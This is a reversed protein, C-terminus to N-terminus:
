EREEKASAFAEITMTPKGLDAWTRAAEFREPYRNLAEGIHYGYDAQQSFHRGLALFAMPMTIVRRKPGPLSTVLRRAASLQDVAEPGQIVYEQAEGPQAIHLARAVQRGYDHAAVFWPREASQGLVLVLPGMAQTGLMTEMFNSPYFISYDLGSTKILKVAEHKLRFVWWDFGNMGQYRMVISALYAVRTVGAMKAAALLHRLGDTETHFDGPKETQKVSLSLYVVACGALANPLSEPKQLDGFAVDANPFLRKAAVVDRAIIRVAFGARILAEAVPKGILGTAGIFALPTM